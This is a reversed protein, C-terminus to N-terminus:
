HKEVDLYQWNNNMIPHLKFGKIWPQIIWNRYRHLHIVLATDAEIQRNIQTILAQREPGDPMPRAKAYLSNFAASDYCGLNGQGINPGYLSDFSDFADPIGASQGLTWMMLRCESAAKLNDAWNSVPYDSHVGIRDLSRKWVENLMQDRLTASTSLKIVLPSGDPMTRWGDKGKRYGFYDLLKEALPPDYPISSRYAPDYGVVGPPVVSEARIAQGQRIQYIDDHLNYAMAIARRLAIKEPAFGGVVPDRFNFITYVIDPNVFRYLKMGKEAFEPKLRDKDLVKNVVIDSVWDADIQGGAFALWRSQHEEIIYAEVRGIRPMQKGKMDKVLQEDWKEVPKFDWIFGRYEPNAELIIKSRPVYEKLMYPGTGVPHQGSDHGYHEIVERAVAGATANAVVYLMTPDPRTLRVRLTYRDPTQLGQLPADYDFRGSKRAAKVLEDLGAIKGEYSSASPSRNAPDMIRKITYAFDAATLERRKGKFAPDPAFYIGKRIRFTYTMGDASAEPMAEAAGPVLKVPRALYDYTLLTDYIAQGIWTSYLNNNTKVLDFGDDAAEFAVRLVKQLDAKACAIGHLALGCALAAMWTALHRVLKM